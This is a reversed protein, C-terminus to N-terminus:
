QQGVYAMIREYDEIYDVAGWFKGAIDHVFVREGTDVTRFIPEEWWSGYDERTVADVVRRRFLTLGGRAIKGIGVYEGTTEIDSLGKGYKGLGQGEWNM